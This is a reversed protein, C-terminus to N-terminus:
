ARTGLTSIDTVTYRAPKQVKHMFYNGRRCQRSSHVFGILDPV